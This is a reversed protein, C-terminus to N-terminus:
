LGVQQAVQMEVFRVITPHPLRQVFVLEGFDKDETILIRDEHVAFDLLTEDTARPDVDIASVVDHGEDSLWQSLSHSSSCVDLLFRM